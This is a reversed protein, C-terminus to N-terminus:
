IQKWTSKVSNKRMLTVFMGDDSSQILTMKMKDDIWVLRGDEQIYKAQNNLIFQKVDDSTIIPRHKSNRDLLRAIFHSDLEINEHKFDYYTSKAKEKFEDSWNKREIARITEPISLKDQLQELTLPKLGDLAEHLQIKGDFLMQGIGKGFQEQLENLSHSQVWDSGTFGNFPEDLDYVYVIQSRCNPHLPPRKFIEAHGIPNHKKDWLLGNRHTCLVTTSSDLVSLHRYGKVFPNIKGFAEHATHKASNIWTKTMTQATQKARKFTDAIDDMSPLVDDIKASRVLANLRLILNDRQKALTEPLTLGGITFKDALEKLKDKTLPKIKDKLGYATALGGLAAALWITESDLVPLVDLVNQILAFGDTMVREVRNLSGVLINASIDNQMGDLLSFVDARVTKEYRMLDIHRTILLNILTENM